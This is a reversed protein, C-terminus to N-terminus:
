REPQVQKEFLKLLLPNVKVSGADALGIGTIEKFLQFTKKFIDLAEKKEDKLDATWLHLYPRRSKRILDFNNYQNEDIHSFTKLIKLRQDQNLKEFPKGFLGVEDKEAIPQGKLRVDNIKWLLIALMEGVVGCLAITAPYEGLCYNKKASKLPKLLREFIEKTHPVIPTYSEETTAEAYRELIERSLASFPLDFFWKFLDRQLDILNDSNDAEMIKPIDEKKIFPGFFNIQVTIADGM